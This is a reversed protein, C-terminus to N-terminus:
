YYGTMISDIKYSCQDIVQKLFLAASVQTKDPYIWVFLERSYDDIAVFLYEKKNTWKISLLLKTDIYIM